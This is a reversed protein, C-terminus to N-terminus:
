YQARWGAWAALGVVTGWHGWAKGKLKEGGYLWVILGDAFATVCVIGSFTTIAADNGQSQLLFYALGYTVDRIGRAYVIPSVAGEGPASTPKKNGLNSSSELPLGFVEYDTKPSFFPLIGFATFVTAILYSPIPSFSTM